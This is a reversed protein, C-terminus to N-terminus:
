RGPGIGVRFQERLHAGGEVEFQGADSSTVDPGVGGVEGDGGSADAVGARPGALLMSIGDAQPVGSRGLVTAQEVVM